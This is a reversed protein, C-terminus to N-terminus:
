PASSFLKPWSSFFGQELFLDHPMSVTLSATTQVTFPHPTYLRPNEEPISDKDWGRVHLPGYMYTDRETLSEEQHATEAENQETYAGHVGGLYM